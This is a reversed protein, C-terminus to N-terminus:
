RVDPRRRLLGSSDSGLRRGGPGSWWRTLPQGPTPSASAYQPRVANNIMVDLPVGSLEESLAAVSDADTQDFSHVTVRGNSAAAVEALETAASPSRCLAFVRAGSAAYQRVFELGIGVSTGTVAVRLPPPSAHGSASASVAASVAISPSLHGQLAGLRRQQQAM